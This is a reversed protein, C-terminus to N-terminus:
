RHENASQRDRGIQERERSQVNRLYKPLVKNQHSKESEM